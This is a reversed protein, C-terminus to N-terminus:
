TLDRKVNAGLADEMGEERCSVDRKVNVGLARGMGEGAWGGDDECECALGENEVAAGDVEGDVREVVEQVRHRRM